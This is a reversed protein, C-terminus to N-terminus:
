NINRRPLETTSCVGSSRRTPPEIGERPVYFFVNTLIDKQSAPFRVSFPDPFVAQRNKGHLIGMFGLPKIVSIMLHNRHEIAFRGERPVYFFVNQM